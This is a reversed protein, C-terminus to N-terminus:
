GVRVPMLVYLYESDGVARISAQKLGEGIDMLVEDCDLARLVETLFYAQYSAGGPVGEIKAPLEEYVQGVDAERSSIALQEDKATISIIPPMSHRAILAARELAALFGIRPLRVRTPQEDPFARRYDPFQGEILRSIMMVGDRRFVAQNEAIVFEVEGESDNGLLRMMEQMTRAPVIGSAQQEVREVLQGRRFALRSVDTAILRVEGDEVEICVGTLAPRSEDGAAAFITQRIMRRLDKQQMRWFNGEPIEPLSPFDDAPQVHLNFRARGGEIIAMSAESTSYTVEEGELKHIVQALVKGKLVASGPTEVEAPVFCEVGLELDTAVLRLRDESAELLIGTLIPKTDRNSVAREVTSIGQILAQHQCSFQMQGQGGKLILSRQAPMDVAKRNEDLSSM